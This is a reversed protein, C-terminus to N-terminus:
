RIRHSWGLIGLNFRNIIGALCSHDDLFKQRARTLHIHMPLFFVIPALVIPIASGALNAENTLGLGPSIGAHSAIVGAM